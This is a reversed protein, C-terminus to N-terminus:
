VRVAALLATVTLEGAWRDLYAWDLDTVSAVLNRADRLQLESQSNKAWHLKSLLLDEPTVIAIETGEVVVRRRRAFEEHRYPLDKRVVFDVKVVWECHIINFMGRRRAADRVADVECVFDAAFLRAVPEADAPDLAIVIDIDRTMRPQAYYNMAMSGSLMYPIRLADLRQAVIKLVAVEDSM